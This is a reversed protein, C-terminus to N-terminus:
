NQDQEIGQEKNEKYFQLPVIKTKGYKREAKMLFDLFPRIESRKIYKEKILNM